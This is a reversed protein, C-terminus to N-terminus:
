ADGHPIMVAITWRMGNHVPTADYIIVRANPDPAPLGNPDYLYPQHSLPCEFPGADAFGPISKLTAVDPPLQHNTAFYLLLPACFEHLRIACPDTNSYLAPAPKRTAPASCGAVLLLLCLFSRMM